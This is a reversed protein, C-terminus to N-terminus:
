KAPLLVNRNPMSLLRFSVEIQAAVAVPNGDKLGPRFKWERVTDMASQDLGPDLSRVVKVNRAVGQEDVVLSVLVV